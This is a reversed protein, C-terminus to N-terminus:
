ESYGKDLTNQASPRISYGLYNEKCYDDIFKIIDYYHKPVDFRVGPTMFTDNYDIDIVIHLGGIEKAIDLFKKVEEINDNQNHLIIYKYQMQVKSNNRLKRINEIVADFADVNKIRQFTERSGADVSVTVIDNEGLTELEPLYQIMNSLVVYEKVKHNKFEQMLLPFEKLVSVNGGQFEVKLQQSNIYNNKYLSKIIPLLEYNQTTNPFLKKQACYTCNCDCQKFHDIIIHSIKNKNFLKFLSLIQSKMTIEKYDTCGICGKPLEGNKLSKIYDDRKSIVEKMDFKNFDEVKIGIGETCSCCYKVGDPLFHLTNELKECYYSKEM